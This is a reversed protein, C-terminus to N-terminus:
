AHAETKNKLLAPALSTIDYRYRGQADQKYKITGNVRARRMSQNNWGTLETVKHASVWCEKTKLIADLKKEIRALTAELSM